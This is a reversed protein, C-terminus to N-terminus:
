RKQLGSLLLHVATELQTSINIQEPFVASILLIGEFLGVFTNAIETPSQAEWEGNAIATQALQEIYQRSTLFFSELQQRLLENKSALAYFEFSSPFQNTFQATDSSATEVLQIIKENANGSQQMASQLINLQVEFHQEFIASIIEDKSKFHWYIGGKSLGSAKVIDNMSAQSFGKAAFVATAAALIQTRTEQEENM